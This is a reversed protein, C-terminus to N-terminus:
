ESGNADHMKDVILLLSACYSHVEEQTPEHDLIVGVTWRDAGALAFGTSVAWREPGGREAVVRITCDTDSAIERYSSLFRDLLADDNLARYLVYAPAAMCLLLFVVLVNSLSLSRIIHAAHAFRGQPPPEVTM